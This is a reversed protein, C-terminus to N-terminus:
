QFVASFWLCISIKFAVLSPSFGCDSESSHCNLSIALNGFLIVSAPIADETSPFFFFCSSVLIRYETFKYKLLSSSIFVNKLWFFFIQFSNLLQLGENFFFISIPIRWPSSYNGWISAHLYLFFYLAISSTFISNFRFYYQVYLITIINEFVYFINFVLVM